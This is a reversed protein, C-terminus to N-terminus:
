RHKQWEGARTKGALELRRAGPEVQALSIRLSFGGHPLRARSAAAALGPRELGTWGAQWPGGDVRAAVERFYRNQRDLAWGNVTLVAGPPAPVIPDLRFVRTARRSDPPALPAAYTRQVFFRTPAPIRAYAAGRRGVTVRVGVDHPGPALDRTSVIAEFGCALVAPEAFVRVVDPRVLGLRVDAATPRGDIEFRIDWALARRHKDIAWGRVFLPEAAAIDVSSLHAILGPEGTVPSLADIAGAAPTNIRRRTGLWRFMRAQVTRSGRFRNIRDLM